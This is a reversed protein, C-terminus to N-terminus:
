RYVAAVHVEGQSRSVRVSVEGDYRHLELDVSSGALRLNRIMVEDLFAPLRPNRLRIECKSSDFELGLSAQVLAFPTAAAWAQPSCAVPYLTPGRGRRRKFGCFLEPECPEIVCRRRCFPRGYRAARSEMADEGVQLGPREADVVAQSPFMELAIEVFEDELEVAM